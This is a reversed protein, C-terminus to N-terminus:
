QPCECRTRRPVGDRLPVRCVRDLWVGVGSCSHRRSCPGTEWSGERYEDRVCAASVPLVRTHFSRHGAGRVRPRGRVGRARRVPFPPSDWRALSGHDSWLRPLCWSVHPGFSARVRSLDLKQQISSLPHEGTIVVEDGADVVEDVDVPEQEDESEMCGRCRHRHDSLSKM